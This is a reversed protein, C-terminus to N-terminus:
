PIRGNTSWGRSDVSAPNLASTNAIRPANTGRIPQGRGWKELTRQASAIRQQADVQAGGVFQIGRMAALDATVSVVLAPYPADLPVLHAPLFSEVIASAWEIWEDFPLPAIVLVRSGTSTLGIASGGAVSSVAFASDTAPLAYYTTGESLPAPLSGIESRFEIPQGSAFGHGDLQLLSTITSVSAIERGPNPLTGRPLGANYVDTNNCYGM